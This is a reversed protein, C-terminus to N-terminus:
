LAEFEERSMICGDPYELLAPELEEVTPAHYIATCDVVFVWDLMVQNITDRM